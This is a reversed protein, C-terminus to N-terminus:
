STLNLEPQDPADAGTLALCVVSALILAGLVLSVLGSGLGLGGSHTPKGLWDAVSAGVPRTLVYAM